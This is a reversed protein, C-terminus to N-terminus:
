RIKGDQNQEQNTQKRNPNQLLDTLFPNHFLREEGDRREACLYGREGWQETKSAIVLDVLMCTGNVSM